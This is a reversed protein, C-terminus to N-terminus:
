EGKSATIAIELANYAEELTVEPEKDKEICEIFSRLEEKLPEKKPVEIMVKEPEGFKVVFDGFDDFDKDIISRHMIITQNIYNAELYGKTGTIAINRIKIPTIWNTQIIANTSNFRMFIEAYDDRDTAIAKGHFGIVKDPQKGLLYSVIDIDHVALDIMVNADKIQPPFIGVRKALVSTVDGLEKDELLKKLRRVVPNFREIHGVTVKVNSKKAADIIEQAEKLDGAIPKEILVNIGKQICLLAIEKHYINPVAISVVDINEKDIMENYDKYYKCGYKESIAKGQKESLDSVAVLECLESYNRAHHRGMNGIGIVAAKM